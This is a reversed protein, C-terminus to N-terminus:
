TVGWFHGEVPPNGPELIYTCEFEEGIIFFEEGPSRYCIWEGQFFMMFELIEVESGMEM